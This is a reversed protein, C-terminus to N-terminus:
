PSESGSVTEDTSNVKGISGQMANRAEANNDDIEIARKFRFIARDHRDNHQDIKGLEVYADAVRSKFLDNFTSADTGQYKMAFDFLEPIALYMENRALEAILPWFAKAMKPHKESWQIVIFQSENNTRDFYSTLFRADCAAPLRGNNDTNNESVLHWVKPTSSVPKVWGDAILIKAATATNDFYKIGRSNSGFIPFSSYKFRRSTFDDPSFEVGSRVSRADIVFLAIPVLIVATLMLTIVFIAGGSKKENAM